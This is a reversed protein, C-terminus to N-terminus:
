NGCVMLTSRSSADAAIMPLALRQGAQGGPRARQRHHLGGASGSGRRAGEWWWPGVTAGRPPHRFRLEFDDGCGGGGVHVAPEVLLGSLQKRNLPQEQGISHLHGNLSGAECARTRANHEGLVLVALAAAEWRHHGTVVRGQLTIQNRGIDVLLDM